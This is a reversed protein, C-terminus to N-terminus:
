DTEDKMGETASECEYSDAEARQMKEMAEWQRHTLIRPPPGKITPDNHTAPCIKCGCLGLLWEFFSAKFTKRRPDNKKTM